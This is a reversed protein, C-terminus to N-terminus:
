RNALLSPIVVMDRFRCSTNAHMRAIPVAKDSATGNASAPFGIMMDDVEVDESRTM